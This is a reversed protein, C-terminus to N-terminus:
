AARLGYYRCELLRVTFVQFSTNPANSFSRYAYILKTVDTRRDTQRDTRGDRRMSCSPERQVSKWLGQFKLVRRFHIWFIWTEKFDSLCLPYKVHLGIYIKTM